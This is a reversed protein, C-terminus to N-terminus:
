FVIDFTNVASFVPLFNNVRKNETGFRAGIGDLTAARAHLRTPQLALKEKLKVVVGAFGFVIDRRTDFLSVFDISIM